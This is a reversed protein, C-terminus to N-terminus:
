SPRLPEQALEGHEVTKGKKVEACIGVEGFVVIFGHTRDKKIMDREYDPGLRVIRGMIDVLTSELVNM